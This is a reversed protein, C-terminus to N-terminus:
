WIKPVREAITSYAAKSSYPVGTTPDRYTAVVGTVPCFNRPRCHTPATQVSTYIADAEPDLLAQEMTCPRPLLKNRELLKAHASNKTGSSKSKKTKRKTVKKKSTRKRKSGTTHEQGEEEDEEDDDYDSGDEAYDEDDQDNTDGNHAEDNPNNMDLLDLRNDHMSKIDNAGNGRAGSKRARAARKNIKTRTKRKFRNTGKLKVGYTSTMVKNWATREKALSAVSSLTAM